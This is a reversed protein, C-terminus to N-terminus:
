QVSSSRRNGASRKLLPLKDLDSFLLVEVIVQVERGYLYSIYTM